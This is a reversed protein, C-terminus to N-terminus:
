SSVMELYLRRRVPSMALIDSESWGYASALLGVDRLISKARITIEQWLFTLIDFIAFWRQDCSPCVMELRIEALPDRAIIADGVVAIMSDPLESIGIGTGRYTVSTISRELLSARATAVDHCRIISILDANKPLRVTMKYDEHRVSFVQEEDGSESHAAARIDDADFNVELAEQCRQCEAYGAFHTGFTSERVILLQADRQGISMALVEDRSHQQGAITLITIAREVPHQRLGVEWINLIDQESLSYGM